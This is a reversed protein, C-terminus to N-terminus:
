EGLLTKRRDGSPSDSLGTLITSGRGRMAARRTREATVDAQVEEAARSPPTTMVPAAAPAKPRSFLGSM